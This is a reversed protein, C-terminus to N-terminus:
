PGDISWKPSTSLNRGMIGCRWLGRISRRVIGQDLLGVCTKGGAGLGFLPDRRGGLENQRNEIIEVAQQAFVGVPRFAGELAHIGCAEIRM